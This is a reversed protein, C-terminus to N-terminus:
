AEVRGRSGLYSRLVRYASLEDNIQESTALVRLRGSLHCIKRVARWPRTGGYALHRWGSKNAVGRTGVVQLPSIRYRVVVRDDVDISDLAAGVLSLWRDHLWGAPIPTGISVIRSDVMMAAGTALPNRLLLRMREAPTSKHWCRPVPFRDRLKGGTPVGDHDILTADGVTLLTRRSELRARQVALRDLEWIDDQDSLAIYRYERAAARLGAEFNAAIRTYLDQARVEPPRVVVIRIPTHVAFYNAVFNGSGDSSCDDVVYIADPMTSQGAISALQEELFRMGNHTVLVVAVGDIARSVEPPRGISPAPGSRGLLFDRTGAVVARLKARRAREITLALVTAVVFRRLSVLLWRREQLGYRRFMELRNRTIYYRRLPSHHTVSVRRGLIHFSGGRGIPHTIYVRDDAFVQYGHARLRLCLDTDVSDIVLSEDALGAARLGEANFVAVSQIIEPTPRLGAISDTHYRMGSIVGPGVAGWARPHARELEEVAANMAGFVSEDVVTDQDLSMVFRAGATVAASFGLNLSHAIGRNVSKTMVTVNSYAQLPQYFSPDVVRSGDDVVFVHEVLRAATVVRDLLDTSPEYCAFVVADILSTCM